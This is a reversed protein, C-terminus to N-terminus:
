HSRLFNFILNSLFYILACENEQWIRFRRNVGCILYGETVVNNGIRVIMISEIGREKLANFLLPCTKEMDSISSATYMDEKTLRSIDSVDTDLAPDSVSKLHDERNSYYLDSIQLVDSLFTLVDSLKESIDNGRDFLKQLNIMDSYINHKVLKKIEIDKHKEKLYITYCNRGKSKGLYLTKDILEFLDAFNRADAPFSACGATGTIFVNGSELCIKKRLVQHCEYLETFFKQKEPYDVDVLNVILLEDGGFRGVIGKKGLFEGLSKTVSKLVIDGSSHGFTDNIHKFNDLDLITFSFSTGSSILSHVFDMSYARSIIGTLPDLIEDLGTEDLLKDFYPIHRLSDITYVTQLGEMRNQRRIVDTVDVFSGVLGVIENGDYLPRKSAIIDREEGRIVCKGQVKYTSEGSLVRLEDQMYPEPDNHWGMDEDTKGLLIDASEFGYFDLFAQNVGLFRREKDKWFVCDQSTNIINDFLEVSMRM